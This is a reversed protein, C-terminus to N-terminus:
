SNLYVPNSVWEALTIWQYNGKDSIEWSDHRPGIDRNWQVCQEETLRLLLARTFPTSMKKSEDSPFHESIGVRDRVGRTTLAYGERKAGVLVDLVAVQLGNICTEVDLKKTDNM